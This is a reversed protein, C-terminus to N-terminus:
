VQGYTGMDRSWKMGPFIVHGVPFVHLLHKIYLTRGGGGCAKLVSEMAVAGGCFDCGGCGATLVLVIVM